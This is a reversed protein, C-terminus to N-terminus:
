PKIEIDEGTLANYLNQLSHIFKPCEIFSPEFIEYNAIHCTDIEKSIWLYAEVSIQKDLGYGSFDEEFGFRNVLIDPTLAIPKLESIDVLRSDNVDDYLVIRSLEIGTVIMEKDKHSVLNFMKLDKLSLKM